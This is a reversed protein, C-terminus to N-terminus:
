GRKQEKLRRIVMKAQQRQRHRRVQRSEVVQVAARSPVAATTPNDGQKLKDYNKVAALAAALAMKMM